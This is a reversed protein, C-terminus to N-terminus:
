KRSRATTSYEETIICGPIEKVGSEARKQLKKLSPECLDRPVLDPNVITVKVKTKYTVSGMDTRSTKPIDLPTQSTLPVVEGTEKALAIANAQETLIRNRGDEIRKNKGVRYGFLESNILAIGVELKDIFPKFVSRIKREEDLCPKVAEALKKKGKQWVNIEINKLSLGLLEKEYDEKIKIPALSPRLEAITHGLNELWLFGDGTSGTGPYAKGGTCLIYSDAM